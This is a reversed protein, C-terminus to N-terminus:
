GKSNDNMSSGLLYNGDAVVYWRLAYRHMEELPVRVGDIDLTM